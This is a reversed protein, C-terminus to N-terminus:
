NLSEFVIRKLIAAGHKMKLKKEGLRERYQIPVEVTDFGQKGVQHNL